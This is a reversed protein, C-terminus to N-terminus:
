PPDDLPLIRHRSPHVRQGIHRVRAPSIRRDNGSGLPACPPRESTTRLRLNQTREATITPTITMSVPTPKLWCSEKLGCGLHGCPVVAAFVCLLSHNLSPAQHTISKSREDSSNRM